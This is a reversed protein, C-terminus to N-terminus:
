CKAVMVAQIRIKNQHTSELHRIDDNYSHLKYKCIHLKKTITIPATSPTQHYNHSLRPLSPIKRTIWNNNQQHPQVKKKSSALTISIQDTKDRRSRTQKSAQWGQGMKTWLWIIKMTLRMNRFFVVQSNTHIELSLLEFFIDSIFGLFPPATIRTCSTVTDPDSGTGPTMSPSESPPDSPNASLKFSHEVGLFTLGSPADM